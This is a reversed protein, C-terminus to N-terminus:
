HCEAPLKLDAMGHGVPWNGETQQYDGGEPDPPTPPSLPLQARSFSMTMSLMTALSSSGLLRRFCRRRLSAVQGMLDTPDMAVVQRFHLRAPSNFQTYVSGSM